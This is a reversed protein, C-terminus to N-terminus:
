VISIVIKSIRSVPKKVDPFIVMDEKADLVSVVQVNSINFPQILDDDKVYTSLISQFMEADSMSIKENKMKGKQKELNM